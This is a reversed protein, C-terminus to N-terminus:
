GVRATASAALPGPPATTSDSPFTHSNVMASAPHRGAPPSCTASTPKTAAQALRWLAAATQDDKTERCRPCDTPTTM